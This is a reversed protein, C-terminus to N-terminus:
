FSRICARIRSLSPQSLGLFSAVYGLNVRRCVAPFERLMMLYRQEGSLNLRALHLDQLSLFIEQQQIRWWNALEINTSVLNTLADTSIVFAVTQELTEVYEFGAHNRYLSNSSCAIGGEESFWTTVEKGDYLSYSRTIGREIFYVRRDIKGGEVIISKAPIVLRDMRSLLLQLVEDGVPYLQRIRTVINAPWESKEM